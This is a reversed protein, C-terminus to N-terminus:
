RKLMFSIPDQFKPYVKRTFTLTKEGFTFYLWAPNKKLIYDFEYSRGDAGSIKLICDGPQLINAFYTGNEPTNLVTGNLDFNIGIHTKSHKLFILQIIQKKSPGLDMGSYTNSAVSALHLLPNNGLLPDQLYANHVGAKLLAFIGKHLLIERIVICNFYFIKGYTYICRKEM